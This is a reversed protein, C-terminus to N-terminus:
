SRATTLCIESRTRTIYRPWATSSPGVVLHVMIRQMGIGFRQHRRHRDRDQDRSVFVIWSSSPSNGEGILGGEPQTNRVRQGSAPGSHALVRRHQFATEAM